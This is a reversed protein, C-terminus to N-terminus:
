SPGRLLCTGGDSMTLTVAQWASLPANPRHGLKVEGTDCRKMESCSKAAQENSRGVMEARVWYDRKDVCAMRTEGPMWCAAYMINKGQDYMTAWLAWTRDTNVITFPVWPAGCPNGAKLPGERPAAMPSVGCGGGDGRLAIHRMGPARPLSRECAVPAKGDCVTGKVLQFRLTAHAISPGLDWRVGAKPQLCAMMRPRSDPGRPDDAAFVELKALYSSENTAHLFDGGSAPPPVSQRQALVTTSLLASALMAASPLKATNM